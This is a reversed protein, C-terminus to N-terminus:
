KPERCHLIRAEVDKVLDPLNTDIFFHDGPLVKVAFESTTRKSWPTVRDYTAIGDRDGLFAYVPCSLTAELPCTYSVIARISQLTPQISTVFEENELFTRNTGMMDAMINLLERDSGHPYENALVGPAASASVFLAAIPNGASEFRLAVEFALLAGMSHGFFAVTRDSDALPALMRCIDDALAPISTVPPLDHRDRRGPYQVAIRKIESAFARSFPVYSDVSGGFHPFILLAPAPSTPETPHKRPRGNV